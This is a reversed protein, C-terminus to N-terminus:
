YISSNLEKIVINFVSEKIPFSKNYYPRFKNIYYNEIIDLNIEEPVEYYSISDFVKDKHEFPRTIGVNSKGVYVVKDHLILFYVIRMKSKITKCEPKNQLFIELDSYLNYARSEEKTLFDM